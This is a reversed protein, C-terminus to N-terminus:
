AARPTHAGASLGGATARFRSLIAAAAFGFLIAWSSWASPSRDALPIINTLLATLALGLVFCWPLSLVVFRLVGAPRRCFRRTSSTIEPSDIAVVVSRQYDSQRRTPGVDQALHVM